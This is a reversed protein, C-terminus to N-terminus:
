PQNRGGQHGGANRSDGQMGGESQPQSHRNVDDDNGEHSFEHQQGGSDTATSAHRDSHGGAKQDPDAAFHQRGKSQNNNRQADDEREEETFHRGHANGKDNAM